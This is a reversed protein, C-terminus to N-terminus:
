LTQKVNHLSEFKNLYGFLIKFSRSFKDVHKSFGKTHQVSAFSSGDKTLTVKKRNQLLEWCPRMLLNNLQWHFAEILIDERCKLQTPTKKERDFFTRTWLEPCRYIMDHKEPKTKFVFLCVHKQLLHHTLLTQKKKWFLYCQEKKKEVSLFHEKKKQYVHLLLKVNQRM